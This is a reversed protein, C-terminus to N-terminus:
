FAMHNSAHGPTALAEITWGDGEIMEGGMLIVDPAFADDDEEDM